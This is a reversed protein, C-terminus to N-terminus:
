EVLPIKSTIEYDLAARYRNEIQYYRAVKTMPLVKDFKPLYEEMLKVRDAQIAISKKLMSAATDDGMVNRMKGYSEILKALRDGLKDIEAQYEDYLPWFASAEKETLEMNKTVVSKKEAKFADRAADMEDMASKKQAELPLALTVILFAALVTVLKM